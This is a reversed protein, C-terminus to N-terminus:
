GFEPGAIAFMESSPEDWRGQGRRMRIFPRQLVFQQSELWGVWSPRLPVDVIFPRKPQAALCNAVLCSAAEDNRAVVPGIHEFLHGPRGFTYGVISDRREAIWAYAPAQRRFSDLLVRRDAGFVRKDWEFVESLDYDEMLRVSAGSSVIGESVPVREMRQLRYEERFGAPEYVHLGAPTADLRVTAVADVLRMAEELLRTGIGGRRHAPDVLLMAIWAFANDFRLTAVSGVVETARDLAVM